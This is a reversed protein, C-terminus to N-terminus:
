SKQLRERGEQKIKKALDERTFEAWQGQAFQEDAVNISTKLSELHAERAMEQDELSRLAALMVDTKSSYRGSEILKEIFEDFHDNTRFSIASM